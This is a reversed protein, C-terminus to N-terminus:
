HTEPKGLLDGFRAYYGALRKHVEDPDIGFMEPSHHHKGMRQASPNDAVFRAIAAAHMETFPIDFRQYIRRVAGEPDAVVDKHALDIIANEVAPDTERLRTARNLAEIWLNMVWRGTAHMDAGGGVAKQFATVMSALSSFTSVPDRHTWVLGADPYAGLLGQLDFLHNPSKLVWRGKPGKWQFQQLLRKHTRYLGEPVEDIVWQAHRPVGIEAWFNTGAFHHSMGHNCEGPQTCDFRQIERLEPALELVPAFMATVAAIRPDTDFTAAETAPWPIFWEWERPARSAPDQTILDYVITTGTRPLGIVVLPHHIAQATIEPHLKADNVLQLRTTLHHLSRMRVQERVAPVGMEEAAEIFKSLGIRFSLDEGYDQLGTAAQAQALLEAEDLPGVAHAEASNM